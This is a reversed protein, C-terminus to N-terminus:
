QADSPRWGPSIGWTVLVKGSFGGLPIDEPDGPDNNQRGRPDIEVTFPSAIPHREPSGAAFGAIDAGAGPHECAM